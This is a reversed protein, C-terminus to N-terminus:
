FKDNTEFKLGIENFIGKLLKIYVHKYEIMKFKELQLYFIL